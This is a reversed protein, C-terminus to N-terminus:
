DDRKTGTPVSAAQGGVSSSQHYSPPATEREHEPVDETDWNDVANEDWNDVEQELSMVGSEQPAMVESGRRSDGNVGGLEVDETGDDMLGYRSQRRREMMRRHYWGCLGIAGLSGVVNAVVDFLDFDRGNPLIGQVLESGVGLGLTCVVLTM